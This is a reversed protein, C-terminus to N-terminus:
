QGNAKKLLLIEENKKRIEEQLFLSLAKNTLDEKKEMLELFIPHLSLIEKPLKNEEADKGLPDLLILLTEAKMLLPLLLYERRHLNLFTVFNKKKRESSDSFFFDYLVRNAEECYYSITKEILDNKTKYYKYFTGKSIRNDEIIDKVKIEEPTKGEEILNLLADMISQKTRNEKTKM